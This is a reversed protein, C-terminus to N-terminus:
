SLNEIFRAIESTVVDPFDMQSCHSGHFIMEFQSHPMLQHMQRQIEPPTIHDHEGALILSPQQITQLWPTVDHTQYHDLVEFFVKSGLSRIQDLYTEVDEPHTLHPNFGGILIALEIFQTRSANQWLYEVAKPLRQQLVRLKDFLYSSLNSHMMHDLPRSPTGNALVLARVREPHQLAVELAVNVGMSHGLLVSPPLQLHKMLQVLDDAFQPINLSRLEKPQGSHHHGRYDFWICRYQRRLLEIQYTWHLSSCVLGYCFILPEGEGEICYYLSTGDPLTLQGDTIPIHPNSKLLSAPISRAGPIRTPTTTPLSNM